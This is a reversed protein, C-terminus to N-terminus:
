CVRAMEMIKKQGVRVAKAAIILLSGITNVPSLVVALWGDGLDILSATLARAVLLSFEQLSPTLLLACAVLALVIVTYVAPLRYRAYRTRAMVLATFAEGDLDQRAQVFLSQLRPDLEETM